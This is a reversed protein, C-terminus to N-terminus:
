LISSKAIRLSYNVGEITNVFNYLTSDESIAELTWYNVYEGETSRPDNIASGGKEKGNGKERRGEHVLEVEVEVEVEERKERRGKM